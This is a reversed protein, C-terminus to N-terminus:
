RLLGHLIEIVDDDAGASGTAHEGIPEAGVTGLL